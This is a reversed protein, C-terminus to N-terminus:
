ARLWSWCIHCDTPSMGTVFKLAIAWFGGFRNRKLILGYKVEPTVRLCGSLNFDGSPKFDGAVVRRPSRWFPCTRWRPWKLPFCAGSRRRLWSFHTKLPAFCPYKSGWFPLQGLLIPTWRLKFGCFHTCVIFLDPCLSICSSTPVVQMISAVMGMSTKDIVREQYQHNVRQQAHSSGSCFDNKENRQSSPYVSLNWPVHLTVTGWRSALWWKWSWRSISRRHIKPNYVCIELSTRRLLIWTPMAWYVGVVYQVLWKSLVMNLELGLLNFDNPDIWIQVFRM